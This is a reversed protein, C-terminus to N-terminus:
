HGSAAVLLLRADRALEIWYVTEDAEEVVIGLKAVFEARSRAICVSRYNAREHEEDRM